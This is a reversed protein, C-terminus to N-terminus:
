VTQVRRMWFSSPWVRENDASPVFRRVARPMKRYSHKWRPFYTELIRPRFFQMASSTWLVEFKTNFSLFAQLLYQESWFWLNQLVARRPYDSPLFIDHVHVIVGPNLRPIVELYERVVDSGVSAVHSSDIFLVDGEGLSSFFDLDVDQVRRPVVTVSDGLGDKPLREPNPDITVLEGGSIGEREENAKLAAAIVRTSYGSGIEIIRSHRFHRLMSYTVEADVTEFFGNNFHYDGNEGPKDRFSFEPIYRAVVDHVFASQYDLRLDCGPPPPYITWQRREIDSLDPIPWYFHNPVVSIGVNQFARFTRTCLSYLTENEKLAKACNASVKRAWSEQLKPNASTSLALRSPERHLRPPPCSSVNLPPM